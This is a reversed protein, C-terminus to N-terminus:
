SIFSKEISAMQYGEDPALWITGQKGDRRRNRKTWKALRLIRGVMLESSRTIQSPDHKLIRILVDTVTTETYGLLGLLVLSAWASESQRDAQVELTSAPMEWWTLGKRFCEVAEALLQTRSAKLTDINVEGCRIPWFRRLGTDDNGWDDKNTTGVFVCQRPYDRATRGYSPRYRDTPTSIVAKVRSIEANRFADMEQIEVLWKGRLSEFFDKRTVSEHATMYWTDGVLVRLASTKRIGQEGEFVVMTDLQCGPQFIRTVLGIFFNRSAAHVYDAPQYDGCEVGWHDEFASTIREVGDWILGTLWDRVVHKTRQKAVLRVAKNILHDAVTVMGATEQMYVTLRYDDEDCWERTPSNAIFIRDLFEDYWLRDAGLTPDKQLVRVANTM